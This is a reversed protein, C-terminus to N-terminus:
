QVKFGGFSEVLLQLDVGVIIGSIIILYSDFIYQINKNCTPWM